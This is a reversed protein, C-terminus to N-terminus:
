WSTVLKVANRITIRDVEGGIEEWIDFAHKKNPLIMKKCKVGRKELAEHFDHVHSVDFIDDADGIV